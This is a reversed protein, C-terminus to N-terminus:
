SDKAGMGLELGHGNPGKENRRLLYAFFLGAFGLVSFVIGLFLLVNEIPSKLKTIYESMNDGEYQM